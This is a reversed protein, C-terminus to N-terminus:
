VGSVGGRSLDLNVADDANEGNAQLLTVRRQVKAPLRRLREQAKDLMASSSDLL